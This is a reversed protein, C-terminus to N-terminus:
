AMCICEVLTQIVQDMTWYETSHPYYTYQIDASTITIRTDLRINLLQPAQFRQPTPRVPQPDINYKKKRINKCRGIPTQKVRANKISFQNIYALHQQYIQVALHLPHNPIVYQTRAWFKLQYYHSRLQLSHIHGMLELSESNTSKKTSYALRLFKRQWSEFQPLNTSTFWLPLAYEFKSRAKCKYINIIASPKLPTREYYANKLNYYTSQFTTIIQKIHQTFSLHQDFHVGLYKTQKDIKLIESYPTSHHKILLPWHNYNISTLIFTPYGHSFM